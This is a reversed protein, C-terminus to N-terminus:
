KARGKTRVNFELKWRRGDRAVFWLELVGTETVLSELTVPVNEAASGPLFVEVPSLEEMDPGIEELLLGAPDERRETSQFFRFQARGGLSLAFERDRIQHGTGEEMGFPVVTLAKLPPKRGPVAPM